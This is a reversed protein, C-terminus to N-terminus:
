GAVNLGEEIIKSLVPVDNVVRGDSCPKRLSSSGNMVASVQRIGHMITTHDFGGFEKAIQPLSYPTFQRSLYFAVQRARVHRHARSRALMEEMTLGYYSAVVHQIKKIKRRGDSPWAPLKAPLDLNTHRALEDHLLDVSVRLRAAIMELSRGAKFYGSALAIAPPSLGIM